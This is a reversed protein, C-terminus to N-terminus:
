VVDALFGELDDFYLNAGPFKDKILDWVWEMPTAFTIDSSGTGKNTGGTLLAVSNASPTSLSLEPIVV